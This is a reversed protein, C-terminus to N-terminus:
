ISDGLTRFHHARSRATRQQNVDCASSQGRCEYQERLGRERLSAAPMGTTSAASVKAATATKASATSM